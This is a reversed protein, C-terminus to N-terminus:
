AIRKTYMTPYGTLFICCLKYNLLFNVMHKIFSFFGFSNWMYGKTTKSTKKITLELKLFYQCDCLVPFSKIRSVKLSIYILYLNIIFCSIWARNPFILCSIRPWSIIMFISNQYMYIWIRSWISFEIKIKTDIIDIKGMYM